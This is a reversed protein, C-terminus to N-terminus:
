SSFFEKYKEVLAKAAASKPNPNAAVYAKLEALLPPPMIAMQEQSVKGESLDKVWLTIRNGSNPNLTNLVPVFKYKKLEDGIGNAEQSENTTAICIGPGSGPETDGVCDADGCDCPVEEEPMEFSREAQKALAAINGKALGYIGSLGCCELIGGDYEFPM